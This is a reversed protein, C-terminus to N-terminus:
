GKGELASIRAEHDDSTKALRSVTNGLKALDKSVRGMRKGMGGMAKGVVQMDAAIGSTAEVLVDVQEKVVHVLEHSWRRGRARM